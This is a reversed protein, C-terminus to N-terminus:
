PPPSYRQWEARAAPRESACSKYAEALAKAETINNNCSDLAIHSVDQDV